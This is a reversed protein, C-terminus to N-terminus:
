EEVKIEVDSEEEQKIEREEESEPYPTMFMSEENGAAAELVIM